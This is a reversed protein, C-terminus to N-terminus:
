WTAFLTCLVIRISVDLAVDLGISHRNLVSPKALGWYISQLPLPSVIGHYTKSCTSLFFVLLRIMASERQSWLLQQLAASFFWSHISTFRKGCLRQLGEFVNLDSYIGFGWQLVICFKFNCWIADDFEVYGMLGGGMMCMSGVFVFFYIPDSSWNLTMM